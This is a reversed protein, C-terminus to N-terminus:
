KKEMKNINLNKLVNEMEDWGEGISSLSVIKSGRRGPSSQPSTNLYLKKM